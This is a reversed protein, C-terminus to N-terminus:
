VNKLEKLHIEQTLEDWSYVGPINAGKLYPRNFLALILRIFYTRM